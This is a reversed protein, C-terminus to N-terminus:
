FRYEEETGAMRYSGHLANARLVAMLERMSSECAALVEVEREPVVCAVDDRNTSTVEFAIRDGVLVRAVAVDQHSKLSCFFRQCPESLRVWWIPEAHELAENIQSHLAEIDISSRGRAM